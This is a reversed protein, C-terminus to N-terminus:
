TTQNAMRRETERKRVLAAPIGALSTTLASFGVLSTWDMIDRWTQLNQNIPRTKLLGAVDAFQERLESPLGLPTRDAGFNQVKVRVM